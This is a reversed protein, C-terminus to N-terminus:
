AWWASRLYSCRRPSVGAKELGDDELVESLELVREDHGALHEVELEALRAFVALEPALQAARRAHELGSDPRHRLLAVRARILAAHALLTNDGRAAQELEGIWRDAHDPQGLECWCAAREGILEPYDHPLVVGLPRGIQELEDLFSLAREALGRNRLEALHDRVERAIERSREAGWRHALWPEGRQGRQELLDAYRGHLLARETPSGGHRGTDLLELVSGGESGQRLVLQGELRAAALEAAMASPSVDLLDELEGLAATGGLVDLALVLENTPTGADAEDAAARGVDALRAHTPLAGPRLRPRPGDVLVWGDRVGSRLLTDVRSASGRAIKTLRRALGKLTEDEAADLRSRLFALVNEAVIEPVREVTFPGADPEFAAVFVLRPRESKALRRAAHELTRRIWPDDRECWAVVMSDTSALLSRGCREDLDAQSRIDGVHRAWDLGTSTIDQLAAFLRLEQAFDVADEEAPLRVWFADPADSGEGDPLARALWDHVWDGRGFLSPFALSEEGTGVEIEVDLRQALTRAVEGASGPREGPVRLLLAATLDRSWEPLEGPDTGVADLFPRAPFRAYFERATPRAGVLLEHLVVGLAFLDARPTLQGDLLVEPAVYFPSGSSRVGREASPRAFGFDCLHPTGDLDVIVNDPKLDGHVFGADHLRQLAAALRAVVAGIAEPAQGRSWSGLALGEIWERALFRGGGPLAGGDVFAALGAGSCNALLSLEAGVEGGKETALRLHVRRGRSDRARAVLQNEASRLVKELVYGPPPRPISM